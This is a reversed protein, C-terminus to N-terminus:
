WVSVTHKFHKFGVGQNIFPNYIIIYQWQITDINKQHGNYEQQILAVFTFYSETFYIVEASVNKYQM